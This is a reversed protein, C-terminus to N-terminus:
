EKIVKDIKRYDIGLKKCIPKFIWSWALPTLIASNVLIKVDQGYIYYLWGTSLICVLLVVKKVWSKVEKDKNIGDIFKIVFYTLLNVVLCYTFDFNNIILEIIQNLYEM